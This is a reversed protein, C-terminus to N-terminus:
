GLGNPGAGTAQPRRRLPRSAGFAAGVGLPPLPGPVSPPSSQPTAQVSFSNDITSNTSSNIRAGAFTAFGTPTKTPSNSRWGGYNNVSSGGAALWDTANPQFTFPDKPILNYNAHGIEIYPFAPEVLKNTTSPNGNNNVYLNFRWTGKASDNGDNM